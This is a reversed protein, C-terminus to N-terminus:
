DWLRKKREGGEKAPKKTIKKRVSGMKDRCSGERKEVKKRETREKWWRGKIYSERKRTKSLSKWLEDDKKKCSGGKIIQYVERFLERRGWKSAERDGRQKNLSGRVTGERRKSRCKKGGKV